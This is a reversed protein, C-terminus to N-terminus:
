DIERLYNYVAARSIGLRTAIQEVAGRMHLAGREKLWRLLEIREARSLRHTTRGRHRLGEDLLSGVVEGASQFQEVVRGDAATATLLDIARRALELDEVSFNVAVYAIVSGEHVVPLLSVRVRKNDPSRAAYNFLPETRDRLETGDVVTRTMLDGVRRGSVHGNGIARVTPQAPRNDHLVVECHPGIAQALQPVLTELLLLKAEAAADHAAGRARSPRGRRGPLTKTM